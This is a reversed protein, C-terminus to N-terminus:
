NSLLNNKMAYIALQISNKAGTKSILSSRHGEITRRSIGLKDAIENNSYGVCMLELIDSERKSLRVEKPPDCKTIEKKQLLDKIIKCLVQNSFYDEGNLVMSIAKFLEKSGSTKLIYGHAGAELMKYYSEEEESMTLALVKLGPHKKVAERTTDIGDYVPMYIDMLILDAEYEDIMDLFERGNSFEAIVNFCDSQALLYKLADRFMCHDDVVIIDYTKRM